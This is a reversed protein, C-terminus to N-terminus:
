HIGVERVDDGGALRQAVGVDLVEQVLDQAAELVHVGGPHKVSVELGLVHQDVGVALQDNTVKAQGAGDAAANVLGGVLAGRFGGGRPALAVEGRVHDGAPVAGGLEEAPGAHVVGCHVDPSDPADEGLDEAAARGEGAAVKVVHDLEDNVAEPAWRLLGHPEDAALADAAGNALVGVALGHVEPAEVGVGVRLGEVEQAVHQHEVGGLADADHLGERVGVERVVVIRVVLGHRGRHNLERKVLHAREGLGEQLCLHHLLHQGVSGLHLVLRRRARAHRHSRRRRCVASSGLAVGARVCVRVGGGGGCTSRRGCDRCFVGLRAGRGLCLLSALALLLVGSAGARGLGDGGLRLAGQGVLAAFLLAPGGQVCLSAAREHAGHPAHAPRVRLGLGHRCVRHRLRSRGRRCRGQRGRPRGALSRALWGVLVRARGYM